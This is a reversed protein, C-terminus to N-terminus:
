PQAALIAVCSRISTAIRHELDKCSMMSDNSTTKVRQVGGGFMGLVVKRARTRIGKCVWELSPWCSVLYVKSTAM